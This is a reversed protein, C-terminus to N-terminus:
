PAWTLGLTADGFPDVTRLRGEVRAALRGTIDVRAGASVHVAFEFSSRGERWRRLGGLGAGAFPALRGLRGEAQLTAEPVLFHERLALDASLYRVDAAFLFPGHRPRLELGAAVAVPVDGVELDNLVPGAAAAIRLPARGEARALGASLLLALLMLAGLLFLGAGRIVNGVVRDQHRARRVAEAYPIRSFSVMSYLPVYWGPLLRAIFKERQKKRLFAPDGVKDRMEIFNDVALQALADTNEKRLRFYDRFAAERDAGARKLCDHLVTASEFAANMGQGYFPVVGHAADGLLVVKDRHHWPACRITVMAGPRSELYDEALTPILPVADPFHEGFYALVEDRTRIADFSGPGEFPWFLTVTYSGDENPLAIMMFSRRPWIHLAHKEMRFGGDAGPPITLEKYGHALFEQSYDFRFTKQLAARVRSNVGDAGIVFDGTIVRRAGTEANEVTVAGTDLDVGACAEEFAITVNPHREAANLLTINLGSRSVSNIAQSADTGYPQYSLDGSPAHMMRGRMPVATKMVEAALGAEELAALGRTSLALNISRGRTRREGRPDPLRDVLTISHGERALFNAMLAGGLGAGVITIKRPM